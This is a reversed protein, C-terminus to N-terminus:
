TANCLLILNQNSVTDNSYRSHSGMTGPLSNFDSHDFNDIAVTIFQSKQFIPQYYYVQTMAEPFLLSELITEIFSQKRIAQVCVM